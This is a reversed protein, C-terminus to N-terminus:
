RCARNGYGNVREASGVTVGTTFLAKTRQVTSIKFEATNSARTCIVEYHYLWSTFSARHGGTYVATMGTNGGGTTLTMATGNAMPLAFTTHASTAMPRPAAPTQAPPNNVITINNNHGGQTIAAVNTNGSNGSVV